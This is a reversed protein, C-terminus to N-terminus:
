CRLLRTALCKQFSIMSIEKNEWCEVLPLSSRAQLNLVVAKGVSRPGHAQLPPPVASESPPMATLLAEIGAVLGRLGALHALLGTEAWVGNQGLEGGRWGGGRGGGAALM